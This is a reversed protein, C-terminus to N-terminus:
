LELWGNKDNLEQASRPYFSNESEKTKGLMGATILTNFIYHRKDSVEIEILWEETAFYPHIEARGITNFWRGGPEMVIEYIVKDQIQLSAEHLIIFIREMEEFSKALIKFIMVGRNLHKSDKM